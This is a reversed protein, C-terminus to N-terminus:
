ANDNDGTISLFFEKLTKQKPSIAAVRFGAQLLHRNLWVPDDVALTVELSNATLAEVDKIKEEAMLMNREPVKGEFTVRVIREHPM